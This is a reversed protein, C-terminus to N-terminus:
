VHTGVLISLESFDSFSQVDLSPTHTSNNQEETAATSKTQLWFPHMGMKLAGQIDREWSDGIMCLSSAQIALKKMALEFMRPHPKEHGAEESTVIADLYTEIGLRDIKRFQIHATLDSVIAIPLPKISKLFDLCGPRLNMNELFTSWYLEEATSAIKCPSTKFHECMYQFYLLRSHSAAVGSLEHNIYHRCTTYSAQIEDLACGLEDSLWGLTLKLAPTHALQYDYLTNDLDLLVGEIKM